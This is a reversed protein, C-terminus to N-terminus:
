GRHDAPDPFGVTRSRGPRGQRAAAVAGARAAGSVPHM